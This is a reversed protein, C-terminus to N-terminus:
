KVTEEERKVRKWVLWSLLRFADVVSLYDARLMPGTREICDRLEKGSVPRIMTAGFQTNYEKVIQRVRSRDVGLLHALNTMPLHMGKANFPTDWQEMLRVSELDLDNLYWGVTTLPFAHGLESAVLRVDGTKNNKDSACYHRAGQFTLQMGELDDSRLGLEQLVKGVATSVVDSNLTAGSAGSIFPADKGKVMQRVRQAHIFELQEPSLGDLAVRRSRERKSSYVIMYPRGTLDIDNCRLHCVESVRLGTWYCFQFATRFPEALASIVASLDSDTFARVPTVHKTVKVDEWRIPSVAVGSRQLFGELRRWATRTLSATKSPLIAILCQIARTELEHIALSPYQHLVRVNATWYAGRSGAKLDREGAMDLLWRILWALNFRPTDEFANPRQTTVGRTWIELEKIVQPPTSEFLAHIKESLRAKGYLLEAYAEPFDIEVLDPPNSDDDEDDPSVVQGKAVPWPRLPQAPKSGTLFEFAQDAPLPTFPLQGILVALNPNPLLRRLDYQVFYILKNPTLKPVDAQECLTGLLKRV